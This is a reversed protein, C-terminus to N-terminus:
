NIFITIRVMVARFIINEKELRGSFISKGFFHRLLIIKRTNDRFIINRKGSIIIKHGLRFIFSSREWFMVRFYLIKKLGESFIAKGFLAAGTCSREQMIQFSPIKKGFVYYKKRPCFTLPPRGWSICPFIVNETCM